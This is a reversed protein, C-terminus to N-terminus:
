VLCSGAGYEVCKRRSNWVKRLKKSFYGANFDAYTSLSNTKHDTLM